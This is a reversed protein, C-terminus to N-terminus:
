KEWFCSSISFKVFLIWVNNFVFLLVLLLILFSKSLLIWCFSLSFNSITLNSSNKFPKFSSKSAFSSIIVKFFVFSSIIWSILSLILCNYESIFLSKASLTFLFSNSAIKDSFLKRLILLLLVLLLILSIEWSFNDIVSNSSKTFLIFWCNFVFNSM